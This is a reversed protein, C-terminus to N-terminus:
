RITSRRPDSGESILCKKGGLYVQGREGPEKRKKEPDTFRVKKVSQRSCIGRLNLSRLLSGAKGMGRKKKGPQKGESSRRRIGLTKSFKIPISFFFASTLCEGIERKGV